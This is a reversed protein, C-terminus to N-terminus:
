EPVILMGDGRRGGKEKRFAGPFGFAGCAKQPNEVMRVARVSVVINIDKIVIIVFCTIHIFSVM